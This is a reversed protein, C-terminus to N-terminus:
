KRDAVIRVVVDVELAVTDGSAFQGQGVGYADRMIAVRGDARAVDGDIALTFPLALDKSTGRITLTGIAEYRGDGDVKHFSTAEFRAQPHDDVAFWQSGPLQGDMSPNGTTGSAMDIMVTATSGALNEPDFDIEADFSEFRGEFPTSGQRGEFVLSSEDKRVTWEAGNAALPLLILVSLLGTSLARM